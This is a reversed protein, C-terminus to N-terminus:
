QGVALTYLVAQDTELLAQTEDDYYAGIGSCQLNLMQSILYLRHGLWGAWQMATQYNQYDSTIFFNVASDRALAQNVCLYKCKESFDGEKILQGKLYIGSTLGEVRNIVYYINLEEVQHTPLPQQIFSLVERFQEQSITGEKFRRVSRRNM